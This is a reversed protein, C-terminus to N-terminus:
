GVLITPELHFRVLPDNPDESPQPVLIINGDRKLHSDGRAQLLDDIVFTTGAVRQNTIVTMASQDSKGPVNPDRTELVGLGMTPSPFHKPNIQVFTM